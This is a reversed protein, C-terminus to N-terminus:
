SQAAPDGAAAGPPSDIRSSRASGRRLCLLSVVLLAAPLARSTRMTFRADVEPGRRDHLRRHHARARRPPHADVRIFRYELEEPLQPLTRLVQPPVSSLPITDPYRGNVVLKVSEGPNEEAVAMRLKKGDPGNFLGALLKRLVPRVESEFVDGARQTRERRSFSAASIASTVQRDDGADRRQAAPHPDERSYPPARRIRQDGGPVGRHGQRESQGAAPTAQPADDSRAAAAPVVTMFASLAADRGAAPPFTSLRALIGLM